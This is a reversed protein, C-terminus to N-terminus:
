QDRRSDFRQRSRVPRGAHCCCAPHAAGAPGPFLLNDRSHSRGNTALARRNLFDSSRQIAAWALVWLALAPLELRLDFGYVCGIGCLHLIAASFWLIFLTRPLWRRQSLASGNERAYSLFDAIACAAPVLLLRANKNLNYLPGWMAKRDKQNAFGRVLPLAVYMVM